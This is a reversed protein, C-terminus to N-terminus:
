SNCFTPKIMILCNCQFWNSIEIMALHLTHSFDIKDNTVIISTDDAFIISKAIKGISTPLDNIYILFLLPGLVSGQLVGHKIIKWSYLLKNSNKEKIVTRQYRNGLYSQILKYDHLMFHTLTIM